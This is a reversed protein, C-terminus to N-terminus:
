VVAGDQAKKAKRKVIAKPRGSCCSARRLKRLVASTKEGKAAAAKPAPEAGGRGGRGGKRTPM